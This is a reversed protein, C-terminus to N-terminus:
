LAPPSSTGLWSGPVAYSICQEADPVVALIDGRLRVLTSRRPEDRRDRYEDIEGSSM